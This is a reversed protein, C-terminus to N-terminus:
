GALSFIGEEGYIKESRAARKSFVPKQSPFNQKGARNFGVVDGTDDDVALVIHDSNALLKLHTEPSPPDPWGAFFGRLNGAVIGELSDTHQIM